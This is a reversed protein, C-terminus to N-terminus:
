TTERRTGSPQRSAAKRRVAAKKKRGAIIVGIGAASCKKCYRDKSGDDHLRAGTRTPQGCATCVLMVNSLSIPM